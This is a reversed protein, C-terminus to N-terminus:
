TGRKHDAENLQANVRAAVADRVTVAAIKGAVLGLLTFGLLGLAAIKLTAEASGDHLVGRILLTAFALPGLIGAYDRAM